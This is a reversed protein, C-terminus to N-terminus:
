RGIGFVFGEAGSEITEEDRAEGSSECARRAILYGGGGCVSERGGERGGMRVHVYPRNTSDLGM